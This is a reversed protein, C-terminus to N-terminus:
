RGPGKTPEDDRRALEEAILRDNAGRALARVLANADRCDATHYPLMPNGVGAECRCGPARQLRILATRVRESDINSHSM